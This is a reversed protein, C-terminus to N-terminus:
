KSGEESDDADGSPIDLPRSVLAIAQPDILLSQRYATAATGTKITIAANDAPVANVTQFAGSTIIPPSITATLNGANWSRGTVRDTLVADVAVWDNSLGPISLDVELNGRAGSFAFPGVAFRSSTAATDSGVQFDGSGLKGSPLACSVVVHVVLALLMFKWLLSKM